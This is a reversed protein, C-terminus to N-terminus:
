INISYQSFMSSIFAELKDVKNRLESVEKQMEEDTIRLGIWANVMSKPFVGQM